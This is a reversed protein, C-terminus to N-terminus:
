FIFKDKFNKDNPINSIYDTINIKPAIDGVKLESQSFLSNSIFLIVVKIFINKKLNNMKKMNRKIKEINQNIMLDQYFKELRAVRKKM